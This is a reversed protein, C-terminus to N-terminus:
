GAMETEYASIGSVEEVRRSIAVLHKRTPEDIVRIVWLAHPRHILDALRDEVILPFQVLAEHADNGSGELARRPRACSCPSPRHFLGTLAVAARKSYDGRTLRIPNVKAVALRALPAGARSEMETSGIGFLPHPEVALTLDVLAIGVAAVADSKMKGSNRCWGRNPLPGCGRPRRLQLPQTRSM